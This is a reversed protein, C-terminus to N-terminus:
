IKDPDSREPAKLQALLEITMPSLHLPAAGVGFGFGFGFGFGPSASRFSGSRTPAPPADLAAQLSAAPLAIPEPSAAPVAPALDEIMSNFKAALGAASV